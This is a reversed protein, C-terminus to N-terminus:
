AQGGAASTGAQARSECWALVDAARWAVRRGLGTLKVPQQIGSSKVAEYITSRSMTTVATVERQDLFVKPLNGAGAIQQPSLQGSIPRAAAGEPPAGALSKKHRIMNISGM